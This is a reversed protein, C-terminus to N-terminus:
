MEGTPPVAFNCALEADALLPGMLHNEDGRVFEREAYKVADRTV